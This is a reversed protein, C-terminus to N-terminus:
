SKKMQLEELKIVRTLTKFTLATRYGKRQDNEKIIKDKWM